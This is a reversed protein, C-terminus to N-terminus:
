LPVEALLLTVNDRGGGELALQLLRDSAEEMPLRKLTLEIQEDPVHETLGDSCILFLDGKRKEVEVVDVVINQSTGIARTIINRYPHKSAQAPTILGSRVMEGVMSHDSTLQTLKGDRQLYARSDGVHGLLLRGEEDDWLLTLTTGMGRLDESKMQEEFVLQNVEEIAARLMQEDPPAGELVRAVLLVTMRSAVDGAKHGGMGDAVGYLSYRGEQQLVSDQNMVRVNGQHTRTVVKM